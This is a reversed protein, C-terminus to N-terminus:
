FTVRVLLEYGRNVPRGVRATRVDAESYVETLPPEVIKRRVGLADHLVLFSLRTPNPLSSWFTVDDFGAFCHSSVLSGSGDTRGLREATVSM